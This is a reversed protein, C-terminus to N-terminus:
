NMRRRRIIVRPDSNIVQGQRVVEITYDFEAIEFQNDNTDPVFIVEDDPLRNSSVEALKAPDTGSGAAGAELAPSVIEHDEFPQQGPIFSIKWDTEDQSTWSVNEGENLIIPDVTRKNEDRVRACPQGNQTDVFIFVTKDAM